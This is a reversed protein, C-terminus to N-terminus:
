KKNKDGKGLIMNSFGLEYDRNYVEKENNLLNLIKNCYKELNQIDKLPSNKKGLSHAIDNRMRKTNDYITAYEFLVKDEKWKTNCSKLVYYGNKLVIM